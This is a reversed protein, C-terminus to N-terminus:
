IDHAVRIALILSEVTPLVYFQLTSSFYLAFWCILLLVCIILSLQSIVDYTELLRGQVLPEPPPVDPYRSSHDLLLKLYKSLM